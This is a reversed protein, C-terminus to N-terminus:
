ETAGERAGRSPRPEGMVQEYTVDLADLYQGTAQHAFEIEDGWKHPKFDDGLEDPHSDKLAYIHTLRLTELVRLVLEKPLAVSEDFADLEIGIRHDGFGWREDPKFMVYPGTPGDRQEQITGTLVLVAKKGLAANCDEVTKSTPNRHDYM